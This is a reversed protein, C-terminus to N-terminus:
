PGSSFCATGACAELAHLRAALQQVLGAEDGAINNLQAPDSQVDYLEVAGSRREVYLYRSTRLGTWQPGAQDSGGSEIGFAARWSTESSGHLLPLLSRGDLAVPPAVGAIDLITATLDLDTVLEPLSVGPLVGPGRVLLPVRLSTDYPSGAGPANGHQGLDYGSASTFFVYTDNLHNGLGDVVSAVLDEVAAMTRLRARFLDARQQPVNGPVPSAEYLQGYREAPLPQDSVPDRPTGLTDHAVGDSLAFPRVVLFFPRDHPMREVATAMTALEDTQYASATGGRGSLLGKSNVHYNLYSPTGYIARWSEPDWGPPVGVSRAADGVPPLDDTGYGAVYEGVLGTRYGSAQLWSALTSTELGAQFAPYTDVPTQSWIGHNHPYQGRLFSVDSACCDAPDVAFANSFTAGAAGILQQITSSPAGDGRAASALAEFLQVDLDDVVVVVVNPRNDPGSVRQQAAAVGGILAAILLAASALSGGYWRWDHVVAAIEARSTAAEAPRRSLAVSAGIGAFVFFSVFSDSFVQHVVSEITMSVVMLLGGTALAIALASEASRAVRLLLRV